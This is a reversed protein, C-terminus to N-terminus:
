SMQLRLRALRRVFISRVHRPVSGPEISFGRTQGLLEELIVCAEMRALRAGICFHIGHGFGLHEAANDRQLDIVDPADFVTPDRNAAAWLLLLRSGAPIDAGGLSADEVVARYHGKFPSELRVVEEVFREILEPADRLRSQLIPQQALLRIASGVLSSTSEGAAGVLVILISVAERETILGAAEGAVLADIVSLAAGERAGRARALHHRLYDALAATSASLRSMKALDATGSLIDGGAFAWELLRSVDTVPLGTLRAMVMVPVPNALTELCDGGGASLLAAVRPRVWERVEDRMAAVSRANLSPLVLKRHVAHVPEDANALADVTGGFQTLDFLEPAGSEGTILIGTLNASFARTNRLAAHVLAHSAVLYVPTDPVRYVPTHRLLARYFPYPDEIVAPDLLSFQGPHPDIAADQM